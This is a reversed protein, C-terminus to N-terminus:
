SILPITLTDVMKPWLPLDMSCGFLLNGVIPVLAAAPTLFADPLGSFPLSTGFFFV